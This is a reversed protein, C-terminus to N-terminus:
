AGGTDLDDYSSDWSVEKVAEVDTLDAILNELMWKRGLMASAQCEMKHAIQLLDIFSVQVYNNDADRIVVPVDGLKKLASSPLYGCSLILKEDESFEISDEGEEGGASCEEAVIVAKAKFAQISNRDFPVKVEIEETKDLSNKMVKTGKIGTLFVGNLARIYSDKIGQIADVKALILLSDDNDVTTSKSTAATPTTSEVKQDEQAKQVKTDKAVTVLTADEPKPSAPTSAKDATKISDPNFVNTIVRPKQTLSAM